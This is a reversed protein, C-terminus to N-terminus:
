IFNKYGYYYMLGLLLIPFIIWIIEVSLKFNIQLAKQLRKSSYRIAYVIMVTTIGLLFLFAIEMLLLFAKDINIEFNSIKFFM